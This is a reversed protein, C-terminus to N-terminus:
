RKVWTYAKRAKPKGTKKREVMRTDRMLAGDSVGGDACM